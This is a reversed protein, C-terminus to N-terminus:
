VEGLVLQAKTTTSNGNTSRHHVRVQYGATLVSPELPIEIDTAGTYPGYETGGVSVQAEGNAQISLSASGLRALDGADVTYSDLLVMSTSSTSAETGFGGPTPLEDVDPQFSEEVSVGRAVASPSSPGVAADPRVDSRRCNMRHSAM